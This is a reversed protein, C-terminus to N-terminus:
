LLIELVQSFTYNQSSTTWSIHPYKELIKSVNYLGVGRGKGKSSFGFQTLDKTAIREEKISNELIFVQKGASTLYSIQMQPHAAHIAAEIANDCLVSVIIVLDLLEIGKPQIPEPVELGCVIQKSSAEMFKSSLLSKLASNELNALRGVDYKQHSLTKSSDKLVADYIDKVQNMDGSDIGIKLTVLLNTYDHRFGRVERYLDEIQRSYNELDRMQLSQQFLLQEQISEKLHHDLIYAIGMFIVLYAIVVLERYALTPIQQYYELYTLVQILMYYSSMVWNIQYLLKKEKKGIKLTRLRSFDYRLWKLFILAMATAIMNTLIVWLSNDLLRFTAGFLPFIFFAISRFFLNWLTLPFLAYFVAVAKPVDRLFFFSLILSYLPVSILIAVEFSIIFQLLFLAVTLVLKLIFALLTEKVSLKRQSVFVFLVLTLVFGVIGDLLSVLM